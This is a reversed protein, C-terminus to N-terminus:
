IYSYQILSSRNEFAKGTELDMEEEIDDDDDEEDENMISMVRQLAKM